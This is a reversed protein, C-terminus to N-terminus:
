PEEKTRPFIAVLIGSPVPLFIISTRPRLRCRKLRDTMEARPVGGKEGVVGVARYPEFPVQDLANDVCLLIYVRSTM